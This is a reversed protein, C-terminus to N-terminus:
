FNSHLATPFKIVNRIYTNHENANKDSYHTVINNTTQKINRETHTTTFSHLM